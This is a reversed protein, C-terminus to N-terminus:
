LLGEGHFLVSSRGGAFGFLFGGCFGSLSLSTDQAVVGHRALLLPLLGYGAFSMGLLEPSAQSLMGELFEGRNRM